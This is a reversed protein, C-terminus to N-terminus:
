MYHKYYIDYYKSVIEILNSSCYDYFCKHVQNPHLSKGYIELVHRIFIKAEQRYITNIKALFFRTFQPSYLELIPILHKKVYKKSDLDLTEYENFYMVFPTEVRKRTDIPCKYSIEQLCDTNEEVFSDKTSLNDYIHKFVNCIARSVGTTFKKFNFIVQM